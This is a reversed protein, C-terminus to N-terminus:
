RDGAGAIVSSQVTKHCRLSGTGTLGTVTSQGQSLVDISRALAEITALTVVPGDRSILM